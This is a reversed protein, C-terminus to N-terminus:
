PEVLEVFLHNMIVESLVVNEDTDMNKITMLKAFDNYEIVKFITQYTINKELMFQALKTDRIERSLRYLKSVTARNLPVTTDILISDKKPIVSGHPCYKPFDLLEDLRDVFMDSVAHELVEAEDHIDLPNYHMVNMLFVELLRHKRILASVALLGKQSLRLGLTEQKELYSEQQLKKLMESSAPASVGMAEAVRKNTVKENQSQIDYICKLYNEKNPTM